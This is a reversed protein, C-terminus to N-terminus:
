SLSLSLALSLSLSLSLSAVSPGSSDPECGGTRACPPDQAFAAHQCRCQVPHDVQLAPLCGGRSYRGQGGFCRVRLGTPVRQRATPSCSLHNWRSEYRFHSLGLGQSAYKNWTREVDTHVEGAEEAARVADDSAEPGCGAAVM